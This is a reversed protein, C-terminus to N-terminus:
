VRTVAYHQLSDPLKPEGKSLKLRLTAQEALAYFYGCATETPVSGLGRNQKVCFKPVSPLEILLMLM